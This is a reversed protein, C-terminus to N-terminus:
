YHYLESGGCCDAFWLDHVHGHIFSPPRGSGALLSDAQRAWAVPLASGTHLRPTWRGANLGEGPSSNRSALRMSGGLAAVLPRVLTGPRSRLTGRVLGTRLHRQDCCREGERIGTRGESQCVDNQSALNTCCARTGAAVCRRREVDDGCWVAAHHMWGGCRHVVHLCPTGCARPVAM